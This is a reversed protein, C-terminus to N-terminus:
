FTNTLAKSIENYDVDKLIIFQSNTESSKGMVQDLINWTVKVKGQYMKLQKKNYENKATHLLFTLGNM